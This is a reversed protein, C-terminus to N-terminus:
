ENGDTLEAVIRELQTEIQQDIIGHRTEVRCGGASLSEDPVIEAQSAKAIEQILRNIQGGLTEFDTPSLAIRIHSSGASMELSERVLDATIEPAHSLERRIVRKAIKAALSVASREWHRLWDQRADALQAVVSALAPLVSEMKQSVKQDLLQEVALMAAQRGEEEARRRFAEAQQQAQAMIGTAKAQVEDVYRDAQRAIDEFEFAIPLANRTGFTSKIVTAM